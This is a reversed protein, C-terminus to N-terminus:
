DAFQSFRVLAGFGLWRTLLRTRTRPHAEANFLTMGEGKMHERPYRDLVAAVTAPALDWYRLGIM